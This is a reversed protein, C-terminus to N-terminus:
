FEQSKVLVEVLCRLSPNRGMGVNESNERNWEAEGSGAGCLSGCDRQEMM